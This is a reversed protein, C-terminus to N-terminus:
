RGARPHSKAYVELLHQDEVATYIQTTSLSAHGLLEQVARLDGGAKLLHTAFSHRLAHPTVSGPLGLRCRLEETMKQVQRPGLPGGRKAIFLPGEKELPFPLAALYADVAERAAELVPVLREKRGKGTIRLAKPLPSDSAKLSLAESVRLGCGYLLTMLATDRAEVWGAVKEPVATQAAEEVLARADKESLAKPLARPQKPTRIRGLAQNELVSTRELFRYFMRLSSLHRALSRAGIGEMRRRALFSRFDATSLTELDKLNAEGGLHEKLFECFRTLDRAYNEVTAPSARKEHALHSLWDAFIGSLDRAAPLADALAGIDVGEEEGSRAARQVM